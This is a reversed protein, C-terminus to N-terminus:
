KGILIHWCGERSDLIDQESLTILGYGQSKFLNVFAGWFITLLIEPRMDSRYIKREQMERYYAVLPSLISREVKDTQKTLYPRHDQMELFRFAEPCNIAYDVMRRWVECYSEYPDKTAPLNDFLLAAMKAKQEQYLENVLAEKSDFYRYILGTSIGAQQALKPMPVGNVGGSAFVKLAARLIAERKLNRSKKETTKAKIASMVKVM